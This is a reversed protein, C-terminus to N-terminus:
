RLSLWPFCADFGTTNGENCGVWMPHATLTVLSPIKGQKWSVMSSSANKELQGQKINNEKEKERERWCM